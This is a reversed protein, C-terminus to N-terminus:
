KDLLRLLQDGPGSYRGKETYTKDASKNHTGKLRGQEDRIHTVNGNEIVIGKLRGMHDRIFESM